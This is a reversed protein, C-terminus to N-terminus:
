RASTGLVPLSNQVSNMTRELLTCNTRNYHLDPYTTTGAMTGQGRSRLAVMSGIKYELISSYIWQMWFPAIEFHVGGWNAM